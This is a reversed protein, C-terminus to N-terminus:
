NYISLLDFISKKFGKKPTFLVFDVCIVHENVEFSCIIEYVLRACTFRHYLYNYGCFKNTQNSHSNHKPPYAIICCLITFSGRYSLHSLRTKTPQVKDLSATRFQYVTNILLSLIVYVLGPWILSTQSLSGSLLVYMIINIISM